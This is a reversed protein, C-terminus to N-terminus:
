LCNIFNLGYINIQHQGTAEYCYFAQVTDFYFYFVLHMLFICMNLLMPNTLPHPSNHNSHVDEFHSFSSVHICCILNARFPFLFFYKNSIASRHLCFLLCQFTIWAQLQIIIRVQSVIFVQEDNHNKVKYDM